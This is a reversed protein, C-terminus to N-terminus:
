RLFILDWEIGPDWLVTTCFCPEAPFTPMEDGDRSEQAQPSHCFPPNSTESWLDCCPAQGLECWSEEHQYSQVVGSGMSARWWGLRCKDTYLPRQLGPESRSASAYNSKQGPVGAVSSPVSSIVPQWRDGAHKERGDFIDQCALCGHNQDSWEPKPGSWIDVKIQFSILMLSFFELSTM